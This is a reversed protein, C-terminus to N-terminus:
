AKAIVKLSDPVAPLKRQNSEKASFSLSMWQREYVMKCFRM